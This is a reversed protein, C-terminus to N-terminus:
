RSRANPTAFSSSMATRSAPKAISVKAVLSQASCLARTEVASLAGSSGRPGVLSAGEGDCAAFRHFSRRADFDGRSAAGRLLVVGVSDSDNGIPEDRQKDRSIRYDAIAPPKPATAPAEPPTTALPARTAAQPLRSAPPPKRARSAPPPKRARSAPARSAPATQPKRARSASAAQPRPKRACSAAKRARNAARPRSYQRRSLVRSPLMM